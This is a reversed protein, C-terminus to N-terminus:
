KRYRIGGIGVQNHNLCHRWAMCCLSVIGCYVCAVGCAVSCAEECCFCGLLCM